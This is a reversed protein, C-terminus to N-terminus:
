VVEEDRGKRGERERWWGGAKGLNVHSRLVPLNCNLPTLGLCCPFHDWLPHPLSVESNWTQHQFPPLFRPTQFGPNSESM